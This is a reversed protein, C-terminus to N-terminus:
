DDGQPYHGYGSVELRGRDLVIRGDEAATRFTFAHDDERWLSTTLSEGPYVPKTFRASFSRLASADGDSLRRALIRAVIGYTCLGHLIPRSFGARRAFEPDSHLPNYDGNLRYLLAQDPRSSTVVELHAAREADFTEDAPSTPGGFGGAGRIFYSFETSVVPEGSDADVGDAAMVLLAGSGKDYIGRLTGTISLSGAPAVPRHVTISQGAAVIKTRDYEGFPLMALLGNQLHPIAFTPLVRQPTGATNSTTLDLEQLPDDQGAGVGLAYIIADRETWSRTFPRSKAGVASLDFGAM